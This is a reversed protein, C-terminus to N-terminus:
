DSRWVDDTELGLVYTDYQDKVSAERALDNIKDLREKEKKERDEGDKVDRNMVDKVDKEMFFRPTM